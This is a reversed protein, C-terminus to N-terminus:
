EDNDEDDRFLEGLDFSAAGRLDELKTGIYLMTQQPTRHGLLRQVHAVSKCENYACTAFTARLDHSSVRRSVRARQAAVTIAERAQRDPITVLLGQPEANALIVRTCMFRWANPSIPVERFRDGKGRVTITMRQLDIDTVKLSRAESIRLGCLGCLAILCQVMNSYASAELMKLLDVELGPLPHPIFEAPVPPEYDVLLALGYCNGLFRVSTIRRAITKAALAAPERRPDRAENLWDRAIDDLKDLDIELLRTERFLM